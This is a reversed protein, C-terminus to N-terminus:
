VCRIKQLLCPLIGPKRCRRIQTAWLQVTEDGAWRSPPHHLSQREVIIAVIPSSSRRRCLSSPASSGHHGVTETKSPITAPQHADLGFGREKDPREANGKYLKSDDFLLNEKGIEGTVAPKSERDPLVCGRLQAWAPTSVAAPASL